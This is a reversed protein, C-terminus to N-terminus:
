LGQSDTEPRLYLKDRFTVCFLLTVLGAMAAPWLWYQVWHRGVIEAGNRVAYHDLMKGGLLAGGLQGVGLTVLAFLGQASAQMQKPAKRDVYAAGITFIFAFAIGHMALAIFNTWQWAPFVGCAFLVYRVSWAALGLCVMSKFRMRLLFFSLFMTVILESVQAISQVLQPFPMKIEVLFDNYYNWYFCGPIMVLLAAALFAAFNPDKLLGLANLGLLEGVTGKKGAAPPPTHPLFLNYIGTGLCLVAAIKLPWVTEEIKDIGFAYFGIPSILSAAIWGLISLVRIVPFEKAPDQLHAFIISYTLSWTPMYCLCHALLLWFFLWPQPKGDAGVVVTAALYLFGAGLVNLAAMVKESAFFRDAIMGVFLPSIIAAWALPTYEWGIWGVWSILKSVAGTQGIEVNGYGVKDLYSVLPVVWMSNIAYQLFTMAGLHVKTRVPTAM